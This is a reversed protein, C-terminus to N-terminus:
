SVCNNTAHIIDFSSAVGGLFFLLLLVKNYGDLIAIFNCIYVRGTPNYEAIKLELNNSLSEFKNRFCSCNGFFHTMSETIRRVFLVFPMM